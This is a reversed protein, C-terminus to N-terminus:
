RKSQGARLRCVGVPLFRLPTPRQLPPQNYRPESRWSRQNGLPPRQRLPPSTDSTSQLVLPRRRRRNCPRCDERPKSPPRGRHSLHTSRFVPPSIRSTLRLRIFACPRTAQQPATDCYLWASQPPPGLPTGPTSTALRM